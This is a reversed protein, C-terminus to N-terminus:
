KEHEREDIDLETAKTYKTVYACVHWVSKRERERSLDVQMGECVFVKLSGCPLKVEAWDFHIM